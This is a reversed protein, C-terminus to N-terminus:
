PSEILTGSLASSPAGRGVVSWGFRRDTSLMGDRRRMTTRDESGLTGEVGSATRRSDATKSTELRTKNKMTEPKQLVFQIRAQMIQEFVTPKTVLELAKRCGWRRARGQGGRGKVRGRQRCVECRSQRRCGGRASGRQGRSKRHVRLAVSNLARQGIALRLKCLSLRRDLRQECDTSKNDRKDFSPNTKACVV